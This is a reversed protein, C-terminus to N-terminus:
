CLQRIAPPRRSPARRPRNRARTESAQPLLTRRGRNSQRGKTRECPLSENTERWRRVMLMDVSENTAGDTSGVWRSRPATPTITSSPVSRRAHWQFGYETPQRAARAGYSWHSADSSCLFAMVRAMEEPEAVRDMPIDRMASADFDARITRIATRLLRIAARIRDMQCQRRVVPDVWWALRYIRRRRVLRSRM